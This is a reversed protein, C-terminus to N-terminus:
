IKSQLIMEIGQMVKKTESEIISENTTNNIFKDIVDYATFRGKKANKEHVDLFYDIYENYNKEHESQSKSHIRNIEINIRNSLVMMRQELEDLSDILMKNYENLIACHTLYERTQENLFEKLKPHSTVFKNLIEELCFIVNGLIFKGNHINYCIKNNNAISIFDLDKLYIHLMSLDTNNSPIFLSQENYDEYMTYNVDGIIKGSKNDRIINIETGIPIIVANFNLAMKIIGPYLKLMDRGYTNPVGEPALMISHKSKLIRSAREIILRSDEKDERDFHLVGNLQMLYENITCCYAKEDGSIIYSHPIIYAIYRPVDYPSRHTIAYIVPQGKTLREIDKRKFDGLHVCGSKPYLLSVGFRFLPAILDRIVYGFKSPETIGSERLRQKRIEIKELCKELRKENTM